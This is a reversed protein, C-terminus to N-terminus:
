KSVVSAGWRWCEGEKGVRREESRLLGFKKEHECLVPVGAENHSFYCPQSRSEVESLNEYHKLELLYDGTYWKGSKAIYLPKINWESDKLAAIAQHASLVSVEHEPSAGGFAVLVTKKM